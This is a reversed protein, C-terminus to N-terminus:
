EYRLADIPNLRGAKYAPYIGAVLGVLTCLIVGTFVWGWPVVFNTKVILSVVNGGLVGIVIGLVAGMLSILVAESLFQQRITKKKGGLAKILGVERTRENVAVLMINMLGIAAGILTIFGIVSVAMTIYRISNFLREIVADNRDIVFNSEETINLKRISRFQGEAEGMANDTQNIDDTMVAITYSSRSNSFNRDVNKYSTLVLNDRSMGFSSGRSGLVGLVIYPVENIRIISNVAKDKNDKFLRNLVDQGILCFNRGSEAEVKSFNRGASLTYSNLLLFNEDGGLLMVNPTTKKKEYSIIANRNAFIYVGVTGNFSYEKKFADAQEITIPKDLNSTKEKRKGKKSLKLDSNDGDGFHIQRQKFRITFANAGMTSFSETLKQKLSTLATNIGIIAFIGLAIIAVTIGTRLRNNRVTTYALSFNDRFNM